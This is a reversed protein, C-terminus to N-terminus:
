VSCTIVFLLKAATQIKRLYLAHACMTMLYNCVVNYIGLQELSIRGDEPDTEGGDGGFVLNVQAVFMNHLM